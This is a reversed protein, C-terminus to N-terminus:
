TYKRAIKHIQQWNIDV